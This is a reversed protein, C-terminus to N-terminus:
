TQTDILSELHKELSIRETEEAHIMNLIKSYVSHLIVLRENKLPINDLNDWQLEILGKQRECFSIIKEVTVKEGSLTANWRDFQVKEEAVLEKVELGRKNLLKELLTHM